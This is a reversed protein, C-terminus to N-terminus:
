LYELAITISSTLAGGIIFYMVMQLPTLWPIDALKREKDLSRSLIFYGIGVGIGLLPLMSQVQLPRYWGFILGIIFGLLQLLRRKTKASM